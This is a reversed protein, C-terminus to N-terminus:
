RAICVPNSWDNTFAKSWISRVRAGGNEAVERDESWQDGSEAHAVEVPSPHEVVPHGRHRRPGCGAEQPEEEVGLAHPAGDLEAPQVVDGGEDTLKGAVSPVWMAAPTPPIVKAPGTSSHIPVPDAARPRNSSATAPRSSALWHQARILM